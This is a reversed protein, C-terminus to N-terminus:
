REGRTKNCQIDTQKRFIGLIGIESGKSKKYGRYSISKLPTKGPKRKGKMSFQEFVMDEYLEESVGGVM